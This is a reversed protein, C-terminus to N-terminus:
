TIAHYRAFYGDAADAMATKGDTADHSLCKPGLEAAATVIAARVAM